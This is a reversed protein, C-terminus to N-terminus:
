AYVYKSLERGDPHPSNKAYLLADAVEREVHEKIKKLLSDKKIPKVLYDVAGVSFAESQDQEDELVTVFIVPIFATDQNAQLRTCIQYGDMEKMKVDLLILNPKKQRVIDLGESGSECTIVQYGANTLLRDVLKLFDKDDDISVIIPKKPKNM